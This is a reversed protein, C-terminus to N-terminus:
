EIVRVNRRDVADLLAGRADSENELEDFTGGERIEDCATGDGGALRESDATLNGLGELGRVVAADNM